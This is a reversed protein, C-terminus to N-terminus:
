LTKGDIQDENKIRRERFNYTAAGDVDHCNFNLLM